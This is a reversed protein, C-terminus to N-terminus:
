PCNLPGLKNLDRKSPILFYGLICVALLLSVCDSAQKEDTVNPLHRVALSLWQMPVLFLSALM